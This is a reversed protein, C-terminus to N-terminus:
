RYNNMRNKSSNSKLLTKFGNCLQIVSPYNYNVLFYGTNTLKVNWTYLKSNANIKFMLYFWGPNDYNLSFYYVSKNPNVRSYDEIFKVVDKKTGSKFKESSTMENLLRVKNQLYEVIIQDLDNYKQNDVILVKGLALPNEKELEQIDIHQFLDKDLKWTIVLHDDGRSSQRIVFEGREKSRLYDEAQRGNFPFYYPHNIVRHTRKARAEAMMLKREEEADELEQKLDWISPDKSYSIPVYQQKVDHDLLSVEATINAYDIYIVKAPYTKGIEYIENAPRRLQAGAHRQANVVCEVESNTTCIIDNHWFREVRVPIISGKFFTKESEGTLSQFIEDGQLPHFDNRLEEFGDLLELVITNLNNLKRLGTNKELEEAYSELNLSELKARRDPDERLLEIFESMTGQEEKEAITDPDYELADAAVKTALHYDEPHIRTSDLQDHELDEYKQRKENWSIYLFGASNMFITKHLINHTILQQRALLPENLRQLSQLFDIAKRKGFGSIYKLASAYYNNDTAKNVEVSVLNVIDVFATELAWSLQESSLLNQHPHISLSRVEESTLNAYELLPSHMYRALAICYKVLPPKNPFEQAARESNQYRIAVEDEVYIIPITHGRSDVIQKKHLVEQLRKYFKQTKPNPGNIGIANPQCSQIINDLTDEFKEPDTKDFPNDVIKYDRIFDGKRNVYVAIIADAGFRGQGCTLTLIKPIKPDRVNPIFPAQDLKTMFKHRVTKAVLKQCNKTLNDKVEQSIDQFIKDMAQNFALKRFNNWEIAIDSTNTTELAIQFLHEIYQAQSSMHLKVSLLNLSEAEVMKLFVDPDRRFHMPTRNIAYKIDEYLSGKQIEKKGKATLVVDALYYKSFDSRVKERIKTNKSLELSYYKQVTDIALKTNSTFVQLDGSNANLISEIVEVPKSSPHDVPPHIQHQSSINEGVDEASIGIDSVAQYLPSAKFKEYSSNKLHKKGTKGTHNIFMENIENAYKFELYDYIDQLSNLEAISATNQNKFYETVIPDDIHLEAYFRQVYDKKNVLSHFEIDLSVIDWLDDETLLFGDKERSSIYNRRYAYIFPVELNEKTIFKIANGIAEKFETLDYNADFNKDVSIKEAIWNRELEQDESSMNGYDTIGARLEQYREPIDTKRIKMDGETMLNKKLDELDYIDQLSIKKKTSKIAGTEEDIEEEEAENNDNGNELEENEIELAWDYDHGDGFIDYMEDIKDSSLGTIQTPQKISQERLLKKEQIRRQRTEDDEDSFEDDEIFDDLEDLIGGKDATRNRNEHDEEDRGYENNRGNRLGSEEEEEDESFFDELKSTSDQRSAAVNDSESEAANGEDGVRKLRKFKGSSSSAKTREVGANEMLLDLDDESLRDDEERERRKHKRRKKSISTGPDENEDDDNVIFGEQVKRAEDEDEDIDEDEESSDFVDEGEEEDSPAKTEDNDNVIEEEDRPVLKSDGTEEM